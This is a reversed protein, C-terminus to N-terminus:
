YGARYCGNRRLRKALETGATSASADAAQTWDTLDAVAAAGALANEESMAVAVALGTHHGIRWRYLDDPNVTDPLQYVYLGPSAETAQVPIRDESRVIRIAHTTDTM